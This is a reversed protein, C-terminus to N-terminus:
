RNIKTKEAAMSSMYGTCDSFVPNRKCVSVNYVSKAWVAINRNQLDLYRQIM